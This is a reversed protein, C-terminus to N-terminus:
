FGPKREEDLRDQAQSLLPDNVHPTNDGSLPNFDQNRRKMPKIGDENKTHEDDVVALSVIPEGDQGEDSSHVGDGGALRAEECVKDEDDRDGIKNSDGLSGEERNALHRERGAEVHEEEKDEDVDKPKSQNKRGTRTIIMM